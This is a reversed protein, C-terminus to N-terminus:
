ATQQAAPLTISILRIVGYWPAGLRDALRASKRLLRPANPSRLSLCVVVRESTNAVAEPLIGPAFPMNASGTRRGLVENDIGHYSEHFYVIKSRGTM